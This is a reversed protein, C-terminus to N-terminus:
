RSCYQSSVEPSIRGCAACVRDLMCPAEGGETTGTADALTVPAVALNKITLAPRRQHVTLERDVSM